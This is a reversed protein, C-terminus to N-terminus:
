ECCASLLFMNQQEVAEHLLTRGLHDSINVIVDSQDSLNNVFREMTDSRVSNWIRNRLSNYTSKFLRDHNLFVQKMHSLTIQTNDRTDSTDSTDDEDMTEDGDGEDIDENVTAPQQTDDQTDDTFM